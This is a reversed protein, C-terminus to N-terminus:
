ATLAPLDEPLLSYLVFDPRLERRRRWSRLVGERVFGAREAVAHSAVNDVDVAVQVREFGADQLAWRAVERLARTAVGRGRAHAALWFGIEAVKENVDVRVLGISGLLDDSQAGVIAWEVPESADDRETAEAIFRKACEMSYPQPLTTWRQIVPDQCAAWLAEADAPRWARLRIDEPILPGGASPPPM